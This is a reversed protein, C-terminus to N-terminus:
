NAKWFITEAGCRTAIKSIKVFGIQFLIYILTFSDPLVPNESPQCPQDLPNGLPAITCCERLLQLQLKCKSTLAVGATCARGWALNKDCRSMAGRGCSRGNDANTVCQSFLSNAVAHWVCLRCGDRGAVAPNTDNMLLRRCPPVVAGLRARLQCVLAGRYRHSARIHYQLVM